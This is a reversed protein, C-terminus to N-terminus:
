QIRLAKSEWQKGDYIKIYYTDPKLGSVDFKVLTPNGKYKMIRKIQGMKDILQIEKVIKKSKSGDIQVFSTAPNPSVTYVSSMRYGYCDTGVELLVIDSFGCANVARVWMFAPYTYITNVQVPIDFGNSGVTFPNNGGSM